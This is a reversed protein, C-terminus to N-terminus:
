FDFLNVPMALEGLWLVKQLPHALTMPPTAAADRLARTCDM